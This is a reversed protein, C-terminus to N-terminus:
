WRERLVWNRKWIENNWFLRQGGTQQVNGITPHVINERKGGLIREKTRSQRMNRDLQVVREQWQMDHSPLIALNNNINRKKEPSVVCPHLM